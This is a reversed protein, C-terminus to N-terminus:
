EGSGVGTRAKETGQEEGRERETLYVGLLILSGGIVVKATLREALLWIGLGTTIIPQLYAFAAVRSATLETMALAFILYAVVSGLVVMYVAGWWVEASLLTWRVELLSGAGFPIMLLGGLAYSLANLTVADYRNAAEKVLITYYAFVASAALLILDGVWHADGAQGTKDVTLVAVGGFSILMGVFKPVTLPELRLMCSLVLVMVPGLTVILGAHAASTRAIGGIFFLQNLTVGCLALGLFFLGERRTWRVSTHRRLALFLVVFVLASGEVRLTALAVPSLGQLAAKGAIINGAWCITAVLMGLHM